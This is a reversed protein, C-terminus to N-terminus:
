GIPRCHAIYAVCLLTCKLSQVRSVKAAAPAVIAQTHHRFNSALPVLKTLGKTVAAYGGATSAYIIFCFLKCFLIKSVLIHSVTYQSILKQQKIKIKVTYAQM